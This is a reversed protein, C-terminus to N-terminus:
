DPCRFRSTGRWIRKQRSVWDMVDTIAKELKADHPALLGRRKADKILPGLANGTCGLVSLAEQLTTGADTIADDPSGNSIERLADLYAM